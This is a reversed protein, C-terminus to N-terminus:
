LGIFEKKLVKPDDVIGFHEGKQHAKYVIDGLIMIRRFAESKTIYNGEAIEELARNLGPSVDVTLRVTKKRRM